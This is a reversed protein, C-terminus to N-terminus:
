WKTYRNRERGRQRKKDKKVCKKGSHANKVMKMRIPRERKKWSIKVNKCVYKTANALRMEKKGAM